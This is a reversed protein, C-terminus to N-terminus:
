SHFLRYIKKYIYIILLVVDGGWVDFKHFLSFDFKHKNSQATLAKFRLTINGPLYHIQNDESFKIM